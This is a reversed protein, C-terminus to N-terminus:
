EHSVQQTLLNKTSDQSFTFDFNIANESRNFFEGKVDIVYKREENTYVSSDHNILQNVRYRRTQNM